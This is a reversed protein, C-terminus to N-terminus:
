SVQTSETEDRAGKREEMMKKIDEQIQNANKIEELVEGFLLIKQQEKTGGLMRLAMHDRVFKQAAHNQTYGVFGCLELYANFGAFGEDITALKLLALDKTRKALSEPTIEGEGSNLATVLTSLRRGAGFITVIKDQVYQHEALPKGFSQQTLIHKAGEQAASELCGAILSSILLRELNFCHRLIGFGIFDGGLQADDLSLSLGHASASGTLGTKFGALKGNFSVQTALKADILMVELAPKPGAGHKWVSCILLDAMSLNTAGRKEINLAITRGTVTGQSCIARVDTGAGAESNCIAAIQRGSVLGALYKEKQPASGFRSLLEVAIYQAVCSVGFPIDQSNLGLSHFARAAQAVPLQFLGIRGLDELATKDFVSESDRQTLTSRLKKSVFRLQLELTANM